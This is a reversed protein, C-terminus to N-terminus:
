KTRNTVQSTRHSCSSLGRIGEQTQQLLQQQRTIISKDITMIAQFKIPAFKRLM